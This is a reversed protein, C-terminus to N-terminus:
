ARLRVNLIQSSQLFWNVTKKDTESMFSKQFREAAKHETNLLVYLTYWWHVAGACM